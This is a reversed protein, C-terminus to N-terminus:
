HHWYQACCHHPKSLLYYASTHILQDFIVAPPGKQHTDILLFWGLYQGFSHILALLHSQGQHPAGAPALM